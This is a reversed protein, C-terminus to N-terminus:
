IVSSLYTYSRPLPGDRFLYGAGLFLLTAGGGLASKYLICALPPIPGAAQEEQFLKDGVSWISQTMETFKFFTSIYTNVHKRKGSPRFCTTHTGNERIYVRLCAQSYCNTSARRHIPLQQHPVSYFSGTCFFRKKCSFELPPELPPKLTAQSPSVTSARERTTDRTQGTSEPCRGLM